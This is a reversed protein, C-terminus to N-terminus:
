NPVFSRVEFSFKLVLSTETLTLIEFPIIGTSVQGLLLMKEDASFEWADIAQDGETSCKLSGFNITYVGTKSFTHVDDKECDQILENGDIKDSVMKWSHATLIDTSTKVIPEAPDDKKCSSAFVILMAFAMWNAFLQKKMFPM